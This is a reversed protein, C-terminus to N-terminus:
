NPDASQRQIKGHACQRAQMLRCEDTASLMECGLTKKLASVLEDTSETSTFLGGTVESFCRAMQGGTPETAYRLMYGIVHVTVDKGEAKLQRALECPNGQCTEDGDTLMVIVAPKERFHLAEAAAKVAQTLPTQGYPQVTNLEAMIRDASYHAVPLKLDINECSNKSGPGFVILGLDRVPAVAPLVRSLAKRIQDIRTVSSEGFGMGSMSGSADFVLMADKACDQPPPEGFSSAPALALLSAVAVAWRWSATQM